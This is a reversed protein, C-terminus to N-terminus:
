GGLAFDVDRSRGLLRQEVGSIGCGVVGIGAHAIDKFVGAAALTQDKGVRALLCFSHAGHQAAVALVPVLWVAEQDMMAVKRCRQALRGLLKHAVLLLRLGSDSGGRQLEANIDTAQFTRKLDVCRKGDAGKQLAHPTRSAAIKRGLHPKDHALLFGLRARHHGLGNGPLEQLADCEYLKIAFFLPDLRGLEISEGVAQEVVLGHRREGAGALERRGFKGLSHEREAIEM